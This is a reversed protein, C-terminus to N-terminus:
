KDCPIFKVIKKSKVQELVEFLQSVGYICDSRTNLLWGSEEFPTYYPNYIPAVSTPYRSLNAQRNRSQLMRRYVEYISM